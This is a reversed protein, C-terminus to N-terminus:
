IYVIYHDEKFSYSQKLTEKVFGRGYKNLYPLPNWMREQLGGEPHLALNIQDLDSIELAYKEKIASVIRKELFEVDRHIQLLNKNALESLDARLETAIDRLPKHAQDIVAKLEDALKQVPPNVKGALWDNKFDNLGYNVIDEIELDYKEIRKELNREVYTLSLRPVVPPMTIGLAHFASKLQAWYSIEGPGGIFALSPFLLEQMLPRTVVNNSLLSPTDKAIGILEETSFTVEEQKGIWEQNENRTLLIRENNKHYFLNVDDLTVDLGLPYQEQKLEASTRFVGSSIKPQAEIMHVFHEKEIERVLPHASDVLVVGEDDFLQFIVRAFFDTYTTSKELCANMTDYLDKTYESEMLQVFLNDLWEKMLKEDLSINSVSRKEINQQAVKYKKLRNAAPLHIHNMEEFDHDEGAIWFVPIVPINLESEQQKALQIISIVKNITYLPGTLLGAQQGGIVVVSNEQKLREINNFTSVPAGWEENIKNLVRTLRSRNFTRETLNQIRQQYNDFPHYDFFQMIEPKNNRYDNILKAQKTLKIPDIWM